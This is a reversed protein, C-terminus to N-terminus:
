ILRERHKEVNPWGSKKPNGSLTERSTLNASAILKMQHYFTCGGVIAPGFGM